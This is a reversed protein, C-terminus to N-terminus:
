HHEKTGLLIVKKDLASRVANVYMKYADATKVGLDYKVGQLFISIKM